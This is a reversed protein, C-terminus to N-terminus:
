LGFPFRHPPRRGRHKKSHTACERSKSFTAQKHITSKCVEEGSSRDVLTNRFSGQMTPLARSVSLPALTFPRVRVLSLVRLSSSRPSLLKLHKTLLM